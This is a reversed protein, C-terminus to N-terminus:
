AVVALVYEKQNKWVSYIRRLLKKAIRVIAEQKKMRRCLEAFALALAPDERIAVWAAEILLYRLFSSSRSTMGNDWEQEGSGSVSPVLGVFSALAEFRKFRGITIIETYLTMAIVFGIGPVSMLFRLVPSSKEDQGYRRLRKTIEAVQQRHSQLEAVYGLLTDKGAAHSFTLAELWHIFASSWPSKECPPPIAIGNFHLLSKIQNKVRTQKRVVQQRQRCLSRLHQHPEEPIYIGQLSGAELERALKRSDVPDRKRDKEKHTSPVDSPHVVLNHIGLQELCRHIWFGCFGAEYVTRYEGGPYQKILYRHLGEPSPNMSFTKLHQGRCRITVSWNKKHVDLGIYFREGTFDLSKLPTNM